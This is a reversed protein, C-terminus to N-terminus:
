ASPVARVTTGLMYEACLAAARVDGLSYCVEPLLSWNSVSTMNAFTLRRFVEPRVVEALKGRTFPSLLYVRLISEDPYNGVLREVNELNEGVILGVTAAHQNLISFSFYSLGTAVVLERIAAREDPHDKVYLSMMSTQADMKREILRRSPDNAQILLEDLAKIVALRQRISFERSVGQRSVSNDRVQRFYVADTDPPLVTVAPAYTSFLTSFYVVDEGSRLTPEYRIHKAYVSPILKCANLTLLQAMQEYAWEGGALREFERHLPSGLANGDPDVDQIDAIVVRDPLAASFLRELYTPSFTDDEDLFTVFQRTATELGRNRAISVNAEEELLRHVTVDRGFRESVDRLQERKEGNFVLVWEILSADLTQADLSALCAALRDESDHSAVIVSIGRVMSEDFWTPLKVSEFTRDVFRNWEKKEAVIEALLEDYHSM